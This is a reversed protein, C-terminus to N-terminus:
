GAALLLFARHLFGALTDVVRCLRNTFMDFIGTFGDLVRCLAVLLRSLGPYGGPDAVARETGPYSGVPYQIGASALREGTLCADLSPTM